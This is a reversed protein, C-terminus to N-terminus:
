QKYERTYRAEFRDKPGAAQATAAIAIVSGGVSVTATCSLNRGRVGPFQAAGYSLTPQATKGAQLNELTDALALELCSRATSEALYTGRARSGDQTGSAVQSFLSICFITIAALLFMTAVLASGQKNNLNQVV